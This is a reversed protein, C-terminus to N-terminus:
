LEKGTFSSCYYHSKGLMDFFHSFFNSNVSYLNIISRERVNKLNNTLTIYNKYIDQLFNAFVAGKM